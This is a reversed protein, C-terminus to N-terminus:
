LEGKRKPDKKVSENDIVAIGQHRLTEKAWTMFAESPAHLLEMQQGLARYKGEGYGHYPLLELEVPPLAALYKGLACIEQQTANYEQIVPMRVRVKAGDSLLKPLNELILQNNQGTARLHLESSLAKIDYLFLDTWPLVDKLTEYPVCGATDVATAIKEQRCKQLMRTLFDKQLLPEGGSFTVGGGSHDYFARDKKLESFLEEEEIQRGRLQLAGTPCAATCAGCAQCAQCYQRQILHEEDSVVHVGAPCVQQCKGCYTCKEARFYLVPGAPICEPNHCWACRLHFCSFFVTTRIGPGDDLSFRQINSIRGQM